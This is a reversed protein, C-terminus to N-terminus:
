TIYPKDKPALRWCNNFFARHNQKYTIQKEYGFCECIEKSADLFTAINFMPWFCISLVKSSLQFPYDARHLKRELRSSFDRSYYIFQDNFPIIFLTAIHLITMAIGYVPTRFIDKTSNFINKLFGSGDIKHNILKYSEFIVPVILSVHYATKLLTFAPRLAILAINKALIKKSSCDFFVDGTHVNVVARYHHHLTGQTWECDMRRYLNTGEEIKLAHQWDPILQKIEEFNMTTM